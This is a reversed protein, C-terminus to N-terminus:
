AEDEVAYEMSRNGRDHDQAPFWMYKTKDTLAQGVLKQFDTYNQETAFHVILMKFGQADGQEFEPMGKSWEDQINLDDKFMFGAEELEGLDYEDQLIEYDWYGAMGEPSNDLLIFRRRQKATLNPALKVWAEPVKQRGLALCARYRQNGGIIVGDEDVVIPRLEMFKPDRKISACLKKFAAETIRRPNSENPTLSSLAVLKGAM